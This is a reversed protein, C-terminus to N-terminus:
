FSAGEGNQVLKYRIKVAPPNDALSTIQLIGMVGHRSQFGYITPGNSDSYQLKVTDHYVQFGYITARSADPHFKPHKPDSDAPLAEALQNAKLDIWDNPALKILKMDVCFLGDGAMYWFDGVDFEERAYNTVLSAPREVGSKEGNRFVFGLAITNTFVQESVPSFTKHSPVSTEPYIPRNTQALASAGAFFVAASFMSGVFLHLTKVIQEKEERSCNMDPRFKVASLCNVSRYDCDPLIAIQFNGRPVNKLGPAIGAPFRGRDRSDAPDVGRSAFEPESAAKLTTLM